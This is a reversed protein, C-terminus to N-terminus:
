RGDGMRDRTGARLANLLVGDTDAGRIVALAAPDSLLEALQQLADLHAEKDVAGFAVVLDVPDNVSHGFAVPEMLSLVALCPRRVGDEPRAHLLVIGPAIVAYPGMDRLVGAMAEGYRPEIAAADVLLRTAEHVAEQWSGVRVRARVTEATLMADLLLGAQAEKAVPATAQM